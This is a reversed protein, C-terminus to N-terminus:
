KDEKEAPILNIVTNSYLKKILDINESIEKVHEVAHFSEDSYDFFDLTLKTNGTDATLEIRQVMDTRVPKGDIDFQSVKGDSLRIIIESM